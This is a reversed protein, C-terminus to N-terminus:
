PKVEKQILAAVFVYLPARGQCLCADTIDMFLDPTLACLSSCTHRPASEAISGPLSLQTSADSTERSATSASASCPSRM